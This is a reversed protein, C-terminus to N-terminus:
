RCESGPVQCGSYRSSAFNLRDSHAIILSSILIGFVELSLISMSQQERASTKTKKGPTQGLGSSSWAQTPGVIQIITLLVFATLCQHSVQSAWMAKKKGMETPTPNKTLWSRIERRSPPCRSYEWGGIGIIRPLRSPGKKLKLLGSIPASDKGSWEDLASLGTGGRIRFLIGAYEKTHDPADAEKSYYVEQYVKNPIGHGDATSVLEQVLPPKQAYEYLGHNAPTSAYQTLRSGIDTTDRQIQTVHAFQIRLPSSPPSPAFTVNLPRDTRRKKMSRLQDSEIMISTPVYFPNEERDETPGQNPTQTTKTSISTSRTM